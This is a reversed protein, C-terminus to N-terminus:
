ASVVKVRIEFSSHVFRICGTGLTGVNWDIIAVDKHCRAVGLSPDYRARRGQGLDRGAASGLALGQRVQDRRELGGDHVVRGVAACDGPSRLWELWLGAVLLAPDRDM